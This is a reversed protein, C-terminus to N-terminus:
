SPSAAPWRRRIVSSPVPRPADSSPTKTRRRLLQGDVRQVQWAIYAEGQELSDVRWLSEDRTTGFSADPYGEPVPVDNYPICPVQGGEFPDLSYGAIFWADEATPRSTFAVIRGEAEPEGDFGILGDGLPM